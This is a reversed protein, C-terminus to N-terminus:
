NRTMKNAKTAALRRSDTLIQAQKFHYGRKGTNRKLESSVASQSAGIICAIKQQSINTEKACLDPM